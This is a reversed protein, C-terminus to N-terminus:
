ALTAFSLLTHSIRLRAVYCSNTFPQVTSPRVEKSPILLAKILRSHGIRKNKQSRTVCLSLHTLSVKSLHFCYKLGVM